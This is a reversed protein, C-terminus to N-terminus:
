PSGLTEADYTVGPDWMFWSDYGMERAARIQARIEEPGYVVRMSFHQLWPVIPRGTRQVQQQFDRLSAKVIDYPQSEPDEVGYEGPNWHSPYLMPAVYDSHGAIALIDQGIQEPRTAAIGFVSAGQVAGRERVEGHSDGLFGAIVEAPRREDTDLGPIVMQELYGDPRRVYDWLIGDVGAEVAEVALDINYQQVEPHAFNTFGGGYKGFRGGDPAQIVQDHDGSEWARDALIPDRFAVIRGTVRVGRDHLFDVQEELDFLDRSAGIERALPVESSHGVIGGEDKLSLVVTNVAGTDILDIIGQRLGGNAWASATVHIGRIEGPLEIPAYLDATRRNGAEDTAELEVPGPPPAEYDLRFSGDDGLAYPEGDVRLDVAGEVSGEVTVPEDMGREPLYPPVSLRPPTGDVVFDWTLTAEPLLPRPVTLRLRHSGEELRGPEWEIADGEISADALIDTGDFSLTAEDLRGGPSVEIHVTSSALEEPTVHGGDEVGTVAADVRTVRWGWLGGVVVVTLIGVITLRVWPAVGSLPLRPLRPFRRRRELPLGAGPIAGVRPPPLDGIAEGAWARDDARRRRRERLRERGTQAIQKVTSRAPSATTPEGAAPSADAARRARRSFGREAQYSGRTEIM